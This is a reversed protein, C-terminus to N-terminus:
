SLPPRWPLGSRGSHGIGSGRDESRDPRFSRLAGLLETRNWGDKARWYAVLHAPSKNLWADLRSQDHESWTEAVHRNM